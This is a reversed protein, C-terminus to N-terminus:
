QATWTLKVKPDPRFILQKEVPTCRKACRLEIYAYNKDEGHHKSRYNGKLPFDPVKGNEDPSTRSNAVIYGDLLPASGIHKEIRGDKRRIELRSLDFKSSTMEWIWVDGNKAKAVVFDDAVAETSTFLTALTAALCMVGYFYSPRM